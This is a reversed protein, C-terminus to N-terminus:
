GPVKTQPLVVHAVSLVLSPQPKKPPPVDTGTPWLGPTWHWSTLTGATPHDEMHRDGGTGACGGSSGLLFRQMEWCSGWRRVAVQGCACQCSFMPAAQPEPGLM